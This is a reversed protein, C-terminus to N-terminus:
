SLNQFSFSDNSSKYLFRLRHLACFVKSGIYIYIYIYICISFTRSLLYNSANMFFVYDACTHFTEYM